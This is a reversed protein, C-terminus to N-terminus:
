MEPGAMGALAQSLAQTLPKMFWSESPMAGISIGRKELAEAVVPGVSAVTTRALGQKLQETRGASEAVDFLRKVQAMSTFAIATVDGAHMREILEIVRADESADAYIYPAVTTVQAGATQLFDILPRNPESGYLQVAIRRGRLNENQLRAIVGPTTAETGSLDARLGLTRLVREPKPGRCIKRVRALEALFPERLAPEHQDICSLLRKLGEGTLLILDDYDGANFSRIWALVPAPDPADHISVLPCRLVEAGRRLLLDCFVGLERAEPVAILTGALPQQPLAETM